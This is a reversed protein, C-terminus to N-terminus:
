DLIERYQLHVVNDFKKLTEDLTVDPVIGIDVTLRTLHGWDGTREKKVVDFMHVHLPFNKLSSQVKNDTDEYTEGPYMKFTFAIRHWELEAPSYFIM